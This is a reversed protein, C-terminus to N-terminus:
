RIKNQPMSQKLRGRNFGKLIYEQENEVLIYHEKSGNNIWLKKPVHGNKGRVWGDPITENIELRQVEKTIINSIWIRGYQSNKDGDFSGNKKITEKRKKISEPSTAKSSALIRLEANEAFNMKTRKGSWPNGNAIRKKGGLSQAEKVVDERTVIGALGRWAIRDEELGYQEYLLRHAEAHESVTLEVINSPEDTGGM